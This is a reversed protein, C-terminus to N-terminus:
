KLTLGIDKVSTYRFNLKDRVGRLGGFVAFVVVLFLFYVKAVIAIAQNEATAWHPIWSQLVFYTGMGALISAVIWLTLTAVVQRGSIPHEKVNKM